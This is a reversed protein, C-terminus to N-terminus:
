PCFFFGALWVTCTQEWYAEESRRGIRLLMLEMELVCLWQNLKQREERMKQHITVSEIIQNQHYVSVICNIFYEYSLCPEITFTIYFYCIHSIKYYYLICIYTYTNYKLKQQNQQQEHDIFINKWFYWIAVSPKYLANYVKLGYLVVNNHKEKDLSM